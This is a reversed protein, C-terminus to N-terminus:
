EFQKKDMKGIRKGGRRERRKIVQKISDIIEDEKKLRDLEKSFYELGKSYLDDISRKYGIQFLQKPLDCKIQPHFDYFKCMDICYNTTLYSPFDQIVFHSKDFNAHVRNNYMSDFLEHNESLIVNQIITSTIEKDALHDIAFNYCTWFQSPTMNAMSNLCRSMCCWSTSLSIKEMQLQYVLKELVDNTIPPNRDFTQFIEIFSLNNIIKEILPIGIVEKLLEKAEIEVVDKKYTKVVLQKICEDYDHYKASVTGDDIFKRYTQIEKLLPSKPYEVEEIKEFMGSLGSLGSLGSM